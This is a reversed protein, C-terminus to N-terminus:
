VHSLRTKPSLWGCNVQVSLLKMEKDREHHPEQRKAKDREEKTGMLSEGVGKVNRPKNEFKGETQGEQKYGLAETCM